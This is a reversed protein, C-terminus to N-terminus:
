LLKNDYIPTYKLIHGSRVYVSFSNVPALLPLLPFLCKESQVRLVHLTMCSRYYVFTSTWHSLSAVTTLWVLNVFCASFNALHLTPSLTQSPLARRKPSLRVGKWWLPPCTSLVGQALVLKIWIPTEISSVKNCVSLCMYRIVRAHEVAGLFFEDRIYGYKHQFPVNFELWGVLWGLLFVCM